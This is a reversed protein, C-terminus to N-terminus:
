DLRPGSTEGGLMHEAPQMCGMGPTEEFRFRVFPYMEMWRGGAEPVLLRSM